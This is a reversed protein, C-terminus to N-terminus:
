EELEQTQGQEQQVSSRCVNMCSAMRFRVLTKRCGSRKLVSGWSNVIIRLDCVRPVGGWALVKAFIDIFASRVRLGHSM